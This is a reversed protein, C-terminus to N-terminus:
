ITPGQYIIKGDTSECEKSEANYTSGSSCVQCLKREINFYPFLSNCSICTVGDFFPKEKPCDKIGPYKQRNDKYTKLYQMLPLGDQILNGSTVPNTQYENAGAAKVCSHLNISFKKGDTCQECKKTVFNFYEGEKCGVCEYGNYFEKGVPCKKAYPNKM